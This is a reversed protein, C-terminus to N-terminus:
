RECKLRTLAHWKFYNLANSKYRRLFNHLCCFRLSDSGWLDGIPGINEWNRLAFDQHLFLTGIGIIRRFRVRDKIKRLVVRKKLCASWSCDHCYNLCENTLYPYFPCLPGLKARKSRNRIHSAWLRLISGSWDDTENGCVFFKWRTIMVLEAENTGSFTCGHSSTARHTYWPRKAILPLTSIM